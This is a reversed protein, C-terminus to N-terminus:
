GLAAQFDAASVFRPEAQESLVYLRFITQWPPPELEGLDLVRGSAELLAQHNYDGMERGAAMANRRVDEYIAQLGRDLLKALQARTRGSWSAPMQFLSQRAFVHTDSRIVFDGLDPDLMALTERHDILCLRSPHSPLESLTLTPM